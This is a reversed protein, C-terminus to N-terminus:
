AENDRSGKSGRDQRSNARELELRRLRYLHKQRQEIMLIRDHYFRALKASQRASLAQKDRIEQVKPLIEKCRAKEAKLEASDMEVLLKKQKKAKPKWFWSFINRVM